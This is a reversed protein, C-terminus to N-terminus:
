LLFIKRFDEELRAEGAVWRPLLDSTCRDADSGPNTFGDPSKCVRSSLEENVRYSLPLGLKFFLLFEVSLSMM